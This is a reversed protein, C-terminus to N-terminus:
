AAPASVPAPTPAAAALSAASADLSTKLAQLDTDMATLVTPANNVTQGTAGTVLLSTITHTSAFRVLQGNIPTSPMTLSLNAVTTTPDIIFANVNNPMAIVTASSVYASFVTYSISGAPFLTVPVTVTQPPASNALQTDAPIIESGTLATPGAPITQACSQGAYQTVTSACFSSMGVQPFTLYNGAGFAIGVAGILAALSIIGLRTKNM